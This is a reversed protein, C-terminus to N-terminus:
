SPRRVGLPSRGPEGDRRPYIRPTRSRKGLVVIRGTPTDVTGEHVALLLELAGAAEALEEEARQGKILLVRGGVKALPLTLEALVALRGVARAIVADYSERRAEVRRTSGDARGIREGRDQGAREARDQVVEVNSLGLRGAVRRLFAAKKGTAELLTFRLAPLVVALPIGPLGGGSGVDIVRGGEPLDALLPLLTLSDLVHRTWAQGPDTVGTLNFSENAKLLMALYSGLRTVDGPEFVIGLGAAAALFETTPPITCPGDDPSPPNM